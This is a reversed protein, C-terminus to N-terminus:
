RTSAACDVVVEEEARKNGLDILQSEESSEEETCRICIFFSKFIFLIYNGFKQTAETHPFGSEEHFLQGNM